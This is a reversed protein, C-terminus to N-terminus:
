VNAAATAFQHVRSATRSGHLHPATDLQLRAALALGFKKWTGCIASWYRKSIAKSVFPGRACSALMTFLISLLFVGTSYNYISGSPTPQRFPSGVYLSRTAGSVRAPRVLHPPQPQRRRARRRRGRPGKSAFYSTIISERKANKWHFPATISM